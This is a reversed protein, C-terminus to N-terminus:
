FATEQIAQAVPVPNSGPIQEYFNPLSPGSTSPRRPPLLPLRESRRIIPRRNRDAFLPNEIGDYDAQRQTLARRRRVFFLAIASLIMIGFLANFVLSPVCVDNSCTSGHTPLPKLTSMDSPAPTTTTKTSCSWIPCIIYHHIESVCNTLSCPYDCPEEKEDVYIVCNSAFRYELTCARDGCDKEASM